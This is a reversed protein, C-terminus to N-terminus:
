GSVRRATELEPLEVARWDLEEADGYLGDLNYYERAEPQMLHVVVDGYDMLLWWGMDAGEVRSHRIGLEKLSLHIEQEIARVQPRSLGTALVFYDAINSLPAVLLVRIDAAKKGDALRAAM